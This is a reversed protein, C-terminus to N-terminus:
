DQNKFTKMIEDLESITFANNVNYAEILTRRLDSLYGGVGAAKGLDRALSRIYTGKSCSIEFYCYPLNFNSLEFSKVNVNVPKVEFDQGKRAMDCMKKGKIKKASFRPPYQEIAGIFNNKLGNLTSLDLSNLIEESVQNEEEMEADDTPTTAGFKITGTYTKDNSTLETLLKTGKGVGLILLGTALPDLTGAHGIKRIKLIGRLKAIVDFSTWNKEKDILLITPTNLSDQLSQGIDGDFKKDIIVVPM